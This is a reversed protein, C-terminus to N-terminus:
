RPGHLANIIVDAQGNALLQQLRTEEIGAIRGLIVRATNAHFTRWRGMEILRELVEPKRLRALIKPDRGRTLESILFGAKNMDTWTGSLLMEVFSEPPIRRALQPNSELLVGLARTANNRVDGNGDRSARVLATLQSGSQRAYGLLHSAVVRQQEDASNELVKRILGEQDVAYARMKLQITRLPTYESLAYGKLNDETSAGKGVAEGLVSLSQEYLSFVSAPLRATGKPAPLYRAPRGSLGVYVILDGRDDCCLAAVDTPTKGIAQKLAQQAAQQKETWTERSIRDGEHFPLAERIKDTDLGKYGFFEVEGIRVTKDQGPAGPVLLIIILLLCHKM